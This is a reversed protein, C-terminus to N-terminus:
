ARFCRRAATSASARNSLFALVAHSAVVLEDALELSVELVEITDSRQGLVDTMRNM